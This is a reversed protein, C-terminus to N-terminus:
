VSDTAHLNHYEDQHMRSAFVWAYVTNANGFSATACEASGAPSDNSESRCTRATGNTARAAATGAPKPDGDFAM